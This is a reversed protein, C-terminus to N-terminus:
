QQPRTTNRCDVARCSFMDGIAVSCTSEPPIFTMISLVFLSIVASSQSKQSLLGSILKVHHGVLRRRLPWWDGLTTCRIFVSEENDGLENKQPPRCAQQTVDTDSGLNVHFAHLTHKKLDDRSAPLAVRLNSRQISEALQCGSM